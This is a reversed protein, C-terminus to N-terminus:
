VKVNKLFDGQAEMPMRFNYGLRILEQCKILLLNVETNMIKSITVIDYGNRIYELCEDTDLLIHSAFANAEYETRDKRMNFIEFEQFRKGKAQKKNELNYEVVSGFLQM